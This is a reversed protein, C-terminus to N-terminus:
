PFIEVYNKNMFGSVLMVTIRQDLKGEFYNTSELVLDNSCRDMMARKLNFSVIGVYRQYLFYHQRRPM